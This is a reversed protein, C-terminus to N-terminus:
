FEGYDRKIIRLYNFILVNIDYLKEELLAFDRYVKKISKKQYNMNQFMRVFGFGKQAWSNLEKFFELLIPFFISPNEQLTPSQIRGLANKLYVVKEKPFYQRQKQVLTFDQIMGEIRLCIAEFPPYLSPYAKFFNYKLKSQIHAM